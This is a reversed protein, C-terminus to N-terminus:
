DGIILIKGRKNVKLLLSRLDKHFAEKTDADAQLLSYVNSITLFQNIKLPLGLCMLRDSHGMPLIHFKKAITNKIMFGVGSLRHDEKKKRSWYLMYGAGHEVLSGQDAFKVERLAAIDIDLRALEIAVLASYRHPRDSDESDQITWM